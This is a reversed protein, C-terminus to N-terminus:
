CNKEKGVPPTGDEPKVASVIMQHGFKTLGIVGDIIKRVPILAPRGPPLTREPHYLKRRLNFSRTKIVIDSFGAGALLGTITVPEFLFIHDSGNIYVWEPGNMWYSLSGLNTTALRLGGGPRLSRFIREMARRPSRLHEIVDRIMVVDISEAPVEFEEAPEALIRHLSHKALHERADRNVEVAWTEWGARSAEALFWGRGPGVELIRNLRRFPELKKLEKRLRRTQVPTLRDEGMAGTGSERQIELHDELRPNVFVTRCIRCRVHRFGEKVFLVEHEESGCIDCPISIRKEYDPM